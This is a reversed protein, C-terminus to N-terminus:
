EEPQTPSYAPSTPSYAPSTPSYAPSTPSYAPSTPSYAPSTPSYAPSTPSYAPSTPSYAPSTPSYAPSTPSYAPSTPSYAPSTPSYAPSTPSYAPSTPSYAPSSATYPSTASYYPSTAAGPSRAYMPSQGSPSFSVGPSLYGGSAYPSLAPTASGWESFQGVMPTSSFLDGRGGPTAGSMSPTAEGILEKQYKGEGDEVANDVVDVLKSADLLVDMMGTGLRGLQGLMVNETVGNLIDHQSYMAARMFVEVTEEFSARLMPGSEGSNIGHRTVAMLFGGFTMCDSLCAIHRYNVYAGDFSLVTRMENFLSSRAGEIGLVQFMEVVDNSVTSTHDVGPINLVAALNTGDTELVWDEVGVFKQETEKWKQYKSQSNYVKKIGPIGRLHLSELLNKQMRRLVEDDKTGVAAEETEGDKDDDKTIIRIRLVLLPSNDDSYVVDVGNSFHKTIRTAMESMFLKKTSLKKM